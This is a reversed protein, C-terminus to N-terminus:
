KNTGLAIAVKRATMPPPSLEERIILEIEESSLGDLREYLDSDLIIKNILDHANM